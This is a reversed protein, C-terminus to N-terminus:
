RRLAEWLAVIGGFGLIAGFILSDDAILPIRKGARLAEELAFYGSWLFVGASLLLAVAAIFWRRQSM